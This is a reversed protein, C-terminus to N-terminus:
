LFKLSSILMGLIVIGGINNLALPGPGADHYASASPHCGGSGVVVHRVVHRGVVSVLGPVSLRCLEAVALRLSSASRYAVDGASSDSLGLHFDANRGPFIINFLTLIVRRFQIVIGKSVTTLRLNIPM